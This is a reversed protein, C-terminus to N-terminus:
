KPPTEAAAPARDKPKPVQLPPNNAGEVACADAIDKDKLKAYEAPAMFGKRKMAPIVPNPGKIEKGDPGLSRQEKLVTRRSGSPHVLEVTEREIRAM